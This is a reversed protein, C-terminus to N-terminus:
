AVRGPSAKNEKARPEEEQNMMLEEKEERGKETKDSLTESELDCQGVAFANKAKFEHYDEEQM